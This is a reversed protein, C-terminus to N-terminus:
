WKNQTFVQSLEVTFVHQTFPRWLGPYLTLVCFNYQINFTCASTIAVSASPRRPNYYGKWSRSRFPTTRICYKQDWLCYFWLRRYSGGVFPRDALVFPCSGSDTGKPFPPFGTAVVQPTIPSDLPCKRWAIACSAQWGLIGDLRHIDKVGKYKHTLKSESLSLVVLIVVQHNSNEYAQIIDSM